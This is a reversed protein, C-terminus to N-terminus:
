LSDTATWSVKTSYKGPQIVKKKHVHLLLGEDKQWFINSLEEGEQSEHIVVPNNGEVIQNNGISDHFMLNGPFEISDDDEKKLSDAKISIQAAKKVPRKDTIKLIDGGDETERHKIFGENAMANITGFHIDMPELHIKGDPDVIEDSFTMENVDGVAQKIPVNEKDPDIGGVGDFTPQFSFDDYFDDPATGMFTLEYNMEGSFTPNDDLYIDTIKLISQKDNDPDDVVKVKEPDIVPNIGTDSVMEVDSITMGRPILTEYVGDTIMGNGYYRDYTEHIESKFKIKDGAVTDNVKYNAAEIDPDESITEDKSSDTKNYLYNKMKVEPIHDSDPYITPAIITRPIVTRYRDPNKGKPDTYKMLIEPFFYLATNQNYPQGYGNLEGTTRYLLYEFNFADQNIKSFDDSAAPSNVDYEYAIKEVPVDDEKAVKKKGEYTIYWAHWIIRVKGDTVKSGQQSRANRVADKVIQERLIKDINFKVLKDFYVEGSYRNSRTETYLIRIEATTTGSNDSNKLKATVRAATDGSTGSPYFESSISGGSGNVPTFTHVALDVSKNTNDANSLENTGNTIKKGGPKITKQTGYNPTSRRSLGFNEIDKTALSGDSVRHITITARYILGNSNDYSQIMYAANARLFYTGTPDPNGETIGPSIEEVVLPSTLKRVLKRQDNDVKDKHEYPSMFDSVDISRELSARASAQLLQEADSITVNDKNVPIAATDAKVVLPTLTSFSSMLLFGIFLLPVIYKFKRLPKNNLNM